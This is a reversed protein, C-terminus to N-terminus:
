KQSIKRIEVYKFHIYVFEKVYTFDYKIRKWFYALLKLKRSSEFLDALSGHITPPKWSISFKAERRGWFRGEVVGLQRKVTRKESLFAIFCAFKKGLLTVFTALM